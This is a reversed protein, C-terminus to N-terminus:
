QMKRAGEHFNLKQHLPVTKYKCKKIRIDLYNKILNESLCRGFIVNDRCFM